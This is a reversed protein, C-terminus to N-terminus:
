PCCRFFDALVYEDAHPLRLLRTFAALTKHKAPCALLAEMFNLAHRLQAASFGVHLAL